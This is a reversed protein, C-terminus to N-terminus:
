RRYFTITGAKEHLSFVCNCAQALCEVKRHAETGRVIPTGAMCSVGLNDTAFTIASGKPIAELAKVIETRGNDLDTTSIATADAEEKIGLVPALTPALPLTPLDYLAKSRAAPLPRADRAQAGYATGM